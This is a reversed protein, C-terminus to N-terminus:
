TRFSLIAGHAAGPPLALGGPGEMAALGAATLCRAAAARDAVRIALAAPGAEPLGSLDMGPYRAALQAPALFVLPAAGTELRIAGDPEAMAPRDLLRSAGAAAAAPDAALVEIAAIAQATNAHDMLGPVWTAEPTLHQCAFLSLGPAAPEALHFTNFRAETHGGGPLDVPRGFRMVPAVAVGRAALEAAGQEADHARLAVAVLGERAELAARWRANAETPQLVGLLEFYDSGLMVCHNGTGMHASHTGRPAVTFGLRAFRDRAADLNRVLLICHDIGGVHRLM